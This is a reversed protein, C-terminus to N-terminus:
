RLGEAEGVFTLEMVIEENSEQKKTIEYVHTKLHRLKQVIEQLEDKSLDNVPTHYSALVQRIEGHNAISVERHRAGVTGRRALVYYQRGRGESFDKPDSFVVVGDKCGGRFRLRIRRLTGAALDDGSLPPFWTLSGCNPCPADRAPYSPELRFHTGCIPCYNSEGEPTRSSPQM